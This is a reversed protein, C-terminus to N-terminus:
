KGRRPSHYRSANVGAAKLSINNTRGERGIERDDVWASPVNVTPRRNVPPAKHKDFKVLKAGTRIVSGDPRRMPNGNADLKPPGLDNAGNAYRDLDKINDFRTHNYDKSGDPNQRHKGFAFQATHQLSGKGTSALSIPTSGVFNVTNLDAVFDRKAMGGCSCRTQDVPKDKIHHIVAVFKRDEGEPHKSSACVFSYSPM